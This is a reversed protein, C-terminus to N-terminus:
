CSLNYDKLAYYRKFSLYHIVENINEVELDM